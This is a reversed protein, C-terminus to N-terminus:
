IRLGIVCVDDVQELNGRWTEFARDITKKQDEMTASSNELLLSSFQKYKYKKGNEGGFQDAFGDTFLYFITGPRYPIERTTFPHQQDTKGVPQKDARIEHVEGNHVYWLPNNAGSWCIKKKAIDISLMSIDMGDKVDANSKSFTEVVLERTKDLIGGPTNEKFEKVSRNLANSCVVSVMAGPVGHGTSDAAALFFTDGIKEAWYFDGAVIDKPKYLVFNDPLTSSIFEGPPLIAKQLRQAYNISDTIEKQKEEILHKQGAIEEKQRILLNNAKKRQVNARVIFIILIVFCVLAFLFYILTQRSKSLLQDKAALKSDNLEKDKQLLGITKEQKETEYKMSLEALQAAINDKRNASAKNFIENLVLIEAGKLDAELVTLQTYVMGLPRHVFMNYEWTIQDGDQYADLDVVRVPNMQRFQTKSEEPTFYLLTDCFQLVRKRLEAANYSSYRSYEPLHQFLIETPMDYNSKSKIQGFHITDAASMSIGDMVSVLTAKMKHIYDQLSDSLSKVAMIKKGNAVFLSDGSGASTVADYIFRAKQRNIGLNKEAQQQNVEVENFRRDRMYSLQRAGVIHALLFIFIFTERFKPQLRNKTLFIVALPVFLLGSVIWYYFTVQNFPYHMTNFWGYIMMSAFFNALLFYILKRTPNVRIKLVYWAPLFIFIFIFAASVIHFGSSYWLMIKSIFGFVWLAVCFVGISIIIREAEDHRTKVVTIALAPLYLFMIVLYTIGTVLDSDSETFNGLLNLILLTLLLIGALSIPIWKSTIFKKM